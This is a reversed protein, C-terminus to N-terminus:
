NKPYKKDQEEKLKRWEDETIETRDGDKGKYYHTTGGSDTKKTFDYEVSDTEEKAKKPKEKTIKKISMNNWAGSENKKLVQIHSRRNKHRAAGTGDEGGTAKNHDQGVTSNNWKEGTYDTQGYKKPDTVIMSDYDFSETLTGVVDKTRRDALSDNYYESGTTTCYSTVLVCYDDRDDGLSDVFDKVVQGVFNTIKTGKSSLEDQDEEEFPVMMKDHPIEVGSELDGFPDDPDKKEEPKDTEAPEDELPPEDGEPSEPNDESPPEDEEAPRVKRNWCTFLSNLLSIFEEWLKRIDDGLGDVWEPIDLNLSFEEQIYKWFNEWTIAMGEGIGVLFESFGEWFNELSDWIGDFTVGIEVGIKQLFEVLKDYIVEIREQIDINIKPWEIKLEPALFQWEKVSEAPTYPTDKIEQVETKTAWIEVQKFIKKIAKKISKGNPHKIPDDLDQWNPPLDTKFHLNSFRRFNSYNMNLASEDENLWKIDIDDYSKQFVNWFNGSNSMPNMLVGYENTATMLEAPIEFPDNNLMKDQIMVPQPALVDLAGERMYDVDDLTKNTYTPQKNSMPIIENALIRANNAEDIPTNPDDSVLYKYLDINAIEGEFKSKYASDVNESTTKCNQKYKEEWQTIFINKLADDQSVLLKQKAKIDINNQTIKAKEAEDLALKNNLELNRQELKKIKEKITKINALHEKTPNIDQNDFLESFAEQVAYHANKSALPATTTEDLPPLLLEGANKPLANQLLSYCDQKKILNELRDQHDETSFGLASDPPTAAIKGAIYDQADEKSKKNRPRAVANPKETVVDRLAERLRKGLYTQFDNKQAQDLNLDTAIYYDVNIKNTIAGIFHNNIGEQDTTEKIGITTLESEMTADLFTQQENSLDISTPEQIEFDGFDRTSDWRGLQKWLAALSNFDRDNIDFIGWFGKRNMEVQKELTYGLVKTTDIHFASKKDKISHTIQRAFLNLKDTSMMDEGIFFGMGPNGYISQLPACLKSGKVAPVELNAYQRKYAEGADRLHEAWNRAKSVQAGAENYEDLAVQLKQRITGLSGNILNQDHTAESGVLDMDLGLKKAKEITAALEQDVERKEKELKALTTKLEEWQTKIADLKVQITKIMATEQDATLDPDLDDKIKKINLTLQDLDAKALSVHSQTNEIKANIKQQHRWQQEGKQAIPDLQAYEAAAEAQLETMVENKQGLIENKESVKQTAAPLKTDYIASIKYEVSRQDLTQTLFQEYAPFILSRLDPPLQSTMFLVQRVMDQPDDGPWAKLNSKHIGLNLMMKQYRTNKMNEFNERASSKNVNTLKQEEEKLADMKTWNADRQSEKNSIDNALLTQSAKLAEITTKEDPSTAILDDLIDAAAQQDSKLQAIETDFELNQTELQQKNKTVALKREASLEKKQAANADRTHPNVRAYNRAARRLFADMSIQESKKAGKKSKFFSQFEQNLYNMVFDEVEEDSLYVAEEDLIKIMRKIAAVKNRTDFNTQGVTALIAGVGVIVPLAPASLLAVLGIAVGAGLIEDKITDGLNLGPFNIKNVDMVRLFENIKNESKALLISEQHADFINKALTVLSQNVSVKATEKKGIIQAANASVGALFSQKELKIIKWCSEQPTDERTYATAIDPNFRDVVGDSGDVKGANYKESEELYWKATTVAKDGAKILNALIKEQSFESREIAM